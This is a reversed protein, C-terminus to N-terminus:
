ARAERAVRQQELKCEPSCYIRQRHGEQRPVPGRCVPCSLRTAIPTAIAGETAIPGPVGPIVPAGTLTWRWRGDPKDSRGTPYTDDPREQYMSVDRGPWQRAALHRPITGYSTETVGYPSAILNWTAWLQRTVHERTQTTM